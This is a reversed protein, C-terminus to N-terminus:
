RQGSKFRWAENFYGAKLVTEDLPESPKAPSKGGIKLVAWDGWRPFLLYNLKALETERFTHGSNLVVYREAGAEAALPNPHILAPIHDAAPYTAGAVVVESESWRIPLKPLVKAIWSNSGPDGFLILNCTRVDDDTVDKDDKVPLEGRFFRHWEYAFRKLSADAYKQVDANWPRGTGRVCLFKTTFADDIPGTLGPRKRWVGQAEPESSLEWKGARREFRVPRRPKSEEGNDELKFEIGAVKM